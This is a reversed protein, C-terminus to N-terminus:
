HSDGPLETMWINGTREQIAFVAKDAAIHFGMWLPDPINMLSLRSHHFHYVDLPAGV